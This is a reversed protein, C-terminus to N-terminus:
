MCRSTLARQIEESLEAKTLPKGLVRCVGIAKAQSSPLNEPTGTMVVVPIDPRVERVRRAIEDGRMDLMMLDTLVLDFEGPHDSFTRVGDRGTEELEVRYNMDTLMEYIAERVLDEDDIFLIKKASMSTNYAEEIHTAAVSLARVFQTGHALTWGGGKNRRQGHAMEYSRSSPRSASRITM